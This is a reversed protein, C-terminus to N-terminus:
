SQGDGSEPTLFRQLGQITQTTLKNGPDSKQVAETAAANPCPGEWGFSCLPQLPISLLLNQRLLADAILNNGDFLQYPEDPVVRAYDQASYSSPVGEVPFQEEIEFSVEREIPGSCRACDVVLTTKFEGSLLLLNGTSVAELSGTVPSILDIDEERKLETTIDFALKRGPHQLAENLDLLDERRM